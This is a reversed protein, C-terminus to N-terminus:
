PKRRGKNKKHAKEIENRTTSFGLPTLEEERKVLVMFDCKTCDKLKEAYTGQVRGRCFSGVVAWCARGAAIGGHAGDLEKNSTVPCIGLEGAKSGGHQRECKMYEWCNLKKM